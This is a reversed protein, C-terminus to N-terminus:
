VSVPTGQPANPDVAPAAADAAGADPAPATPTADPAPAPEPTPEPAPVPAADIANLRDIAGQVKDAEATLRAEIATTDIQPIAALQAQVDTLTQKTTALDAVAADRETQAATLKGDQAAVRQELSGVAAVLQDVKADQTDLKANVTDSMTQVKQILQQILASQAAAGGRVAFLILDRAEADEFTLTVPM